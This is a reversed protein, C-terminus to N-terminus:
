DYYKRILEGCVECRFTESETKYEPPFENRWAPIERVDAYLSVMEGGCKPCEGDGFVTLGCFAKWIDASITERELYGCLVKCVDAVYRPGTAELVSLGFNLPDDELMEAEVLKGCLEVAVTEVPVPTAKGEAVVRLNDDVKFRM